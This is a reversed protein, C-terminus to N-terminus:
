RLRAIEAPDPRIQDFRGDPAVDYSSLFKVQFDDAPPQPSVGAEDRRRRDDNQGKGPLFARSREQVLSAREGRRDLDAVQAWPGPVAVFVEPRGSDNSHYAVWRGDLPIQAGGESFKTQLFPQLKREGGLPLVFIDSGMEASRADKWSILSILLLSRDPSFSTPVEQHFAAESTLREPPTSGDASHWFVQRWGGVVGPSFGFAVRNGDPAWAVASRFSGEATSRSLTRAFDGILLATKESEELAIAALRGGDPSLAVDDYGGPPFSIPEM